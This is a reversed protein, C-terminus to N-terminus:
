LGPWPNFGSDWGYQTNPLLITAGSHYSNRAHIYPASPKGGHFILAMSPHSYIHGNNSKLAATRAPDIYSM